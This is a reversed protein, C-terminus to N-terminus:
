THEKKIGKNPHTYFPIRKIWLKLANIYIGMAVKVTIAPFQILIKRINKATIENPELVMTADFVKVGKEHNELHITNSADSPKTFLWDYDVNM